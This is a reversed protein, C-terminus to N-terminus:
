KSPITSKAFRGTTSELAEARETAQEERTERRDPGQTALTGGSSLIEGYIRFVLSAPVPQLVFIDRDWPCQM